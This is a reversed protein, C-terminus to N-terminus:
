THWTDLIECVELRNGDLDWFSFCRVGPFERMASARVGRAMLEERQLAVRTGEFVPFSGAVEPFYMDDSGLEWLTLSGGRGIKIVALGKSPDDYVVRLGLHSRYWEVAAALDRVRLVISEIHSFM